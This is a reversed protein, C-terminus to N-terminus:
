GARKQHEQTSVSRSGATVRAYAPYLLATIRHKLHATGDLWSSPVCAALLLLLTLPAIPKEALSQLYCRRASRLDRAERQYVWGSFRLYQHLVGHQRMKHGHKKCFLDRGRTMGEPNATIRGADDGKAVRVLVEPVVEASFRESLRLWLDLDQSSPLSEDFGGIADLASRRVM